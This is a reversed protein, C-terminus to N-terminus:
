LLDKLKERLNKRAKHLEGRSTGESINLIYSIERHSLGDMDFLIVIEKQRELLADIADWLRKRLENEEARADPQPAHNVVTEAITDDMPENRSHRPSRQYDICLNHLIRLLWARFNTGLQYYNLKEYARIFTEQSLEQADEHHRTMKYALGYVQKKYKEYLQRFKEKDGSLCQKVLEDDSETPM